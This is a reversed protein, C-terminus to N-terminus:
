EASFVFFHARWVLLPPCILVFSRMYCGMVANNWAMTRSAVFDGVDAAVSVLNLHLERPASIHLCYGRVALLATALPLVLSKTGAILGVRAMCTDLLFVFM